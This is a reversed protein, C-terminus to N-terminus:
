LRSVRATALIRGRSDLISVRDFSTIDAGTVLWTSAEGGEDFKLPFLEIKRSPSSVLAHARGEIGPARVLVLVWSQGVTSDYMVVSGELPQTSRAHLTGVRVDKGGLAGLFAEYKRAEAEAHGARGSAVAAWSLSAAVLAAAAAAAAVRRSVWRRGAPPSDLSEDELVRLVRDRLGGPPAVQHAAVAFTRM